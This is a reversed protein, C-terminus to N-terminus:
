LFSSGAVRIGLFTVIIAIAIVAALLWSPKDPTRM